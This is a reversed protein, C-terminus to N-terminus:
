VFPSRNGLGFISIPFDPFDSKANVGTPDSLLSTASIHLLMPALRLSFEGILLKASGIRQRDHSVGGTPDEGHCMFLFNFKADGKSEGSEPEEDSHLVAFEV